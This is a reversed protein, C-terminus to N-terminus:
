SGALTESKLSRRRVVEHRKSSELSQALRWTKRPRRCSQGLLRSGNPECLCREALNGREARDEM